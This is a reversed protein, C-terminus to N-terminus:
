RLAYQDIREGNEEGDRCCDGAHPPQSKPTLLREHHFRRYEKEDSPAAACRAQEASYSPGALKTAHGAISYHPTQEENEGYEDQERHEHTV